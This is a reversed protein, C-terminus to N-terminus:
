PTFIRRLWEQVEVPQDSGPQISVGQQMDALDALVRLAADLVPDSDDAAKGPAAPEGGDEEELEAQRLAREAAFQQLRANRELPLTTRQSVARVHEVTRLHNAYRADTALRQQCNSVLAPLLPKLDYVPRFDAPPVQTWPMANPLKDEGIDLYELPSPLVLDAEVGRLQTSGGSIRYYNACTVKLSGWRTDSGLPMITQVSGKGHTRSDGVIVARGYDQLAAAVIESASASIRNVLVVLPKRFTVAPDRDPLVHIRGIERVQVVPGLRIFRGTLDVAERLSGGGNGRLDLALGEIEDNMATLIGAVDRTCSRFLPDRANQTMSGYFAPLRIVGFARTVGGTFAVRAVHGTAAQEELKVDDRVLDVLRTIDGAGSVQLVVRTGKKGRIKRVTQTLPLHLVDEIPAKDQGVGIIKDGERLRIDRTDRAAPGGPVIERVKAAGDEPELVAGIGGLSLNMDINFDEMAAPAMYATHPDYAAAVSSLFRQLVWEADSDAIVIQLQRYRKRVFEEPTLSPVGNTPAIGEAAPANTHALASATGNTATAAPSQSASKVVRNSADFSRAVEYGLYENKIRLRWLEDQAAADAPWPADKRKWTYSENAGFDFGADLLKEVVDCRETMREKFLAFVEFPFTLDGERLADDLRERWPLLAEIDAQRFYSRDYDLAALYNTWAQASITDDLPKQLLHSVPLMRAFQRAAERHHDQPELRAVGNSAAGASRVLAAIALASLSRIFPRCVRM